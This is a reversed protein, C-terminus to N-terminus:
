RCARRVDGGEGREEPFTSSILPIRIPGPAVGDVRIGAKALAEALSRIFALIAVKRSSYDLLQPSGRYATV